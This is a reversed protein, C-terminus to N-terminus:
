SSLEGLRGELFRKRSGQTTLKLARAYCRKAEEIQGLQRCFEARTSHAHSYDALEGRCLIDNILVLGARAGEVKSVAVARNLEVIASPSRDLLRDYLGVIKPWNKEGCLAGQMHQAVIAAQLAYTGPAECDLARAVIELGEQMLASNWRSPSQDEFLVLDGDRTRAASRAEQLLMLGLLGCSEPNPLVELLLRMLRIAEQSLIQRTLYEGASAFYGENFLLYAVSFVSAMRASLDEADPVVYPIQEDRIKAKARVIRQYITSPSVLFAHAIEETTLGCVERLTLAVRGEPSLKPHCCALILRLSDDELACEDHLEPLHTEDSINHLHEQPVMRQDRRLADIGKFRATAILWARPNQPIGEEPWREIAVMYASQLSDEALDFNGLIRVLTALVRPREARLILDIENQM